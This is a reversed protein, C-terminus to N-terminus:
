LATVVIGNQECVYAVSRDDPALALGYCNEMGTTWLTESPGGKREIVFATGLEEQRLEVTTGDRTVVKRPEFRASKEWERVKAERISSMRAPPNAVGVAQTKHWTAPALQISTLDVKKWQGEVNVAIFRGDASWVPHEDIAQSAVLLASRVGLRRMEQGLVSPKGPRCSVTQFSLALVVLLVWKM